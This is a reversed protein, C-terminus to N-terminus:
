PELADESRGNISIVVSRVTEFQRLTNDVQARIASVACSGGGFKNIAESFDVHAIGEEITLDQIAVRPNLSTIYGSNTEEQDPGKLLEELAARAVAQTKAISRIRPQVLACDFRSDQATQPAGFFVKVTMKDRAFTVPIRLTPGNEVTGSPREKKLVLTGTTSAAVPFPLEAKFPVFAEAMSTGQVKGSGTGLVLGREDVLQVPLSGGVFWSLRAEGTIVLPSKISENPLPTHVRIDDSIDSQEGCTMIPMTRGLNGRKIWQGDRCLWNKEDMTVYYRVFIVGGLIAIALIGHKSM